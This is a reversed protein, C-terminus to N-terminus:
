NQIIDSVNLEIDEIIDEELKNQPLPHFWQIEGEHFIGQFNDGDVNLSFQQREHVQGEFMPKVEFSHVQNEILDSVKSEVRTFTDENLTKQPHPHFWQIEEEHFIGQYSIGEINLSFQHREHTQGEFMPQVEFDQFM